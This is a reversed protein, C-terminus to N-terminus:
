PQLLGVIRQVEGLVPGAIARARAAGEKLVNDIHAPDGMLRQMEAGIPALRAVALATLAEKFASFPKGGFENQVASLESEALAAYIELLNFAEPRVVHRLGEM